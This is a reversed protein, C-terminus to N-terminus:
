AGPLTNRSPSVLTLSDFSRSLAVYRLNRRQDLEWRPPPRLKDRAEGFPIQLYAVNRAESGKARHVSSYTIRAASDDDAFLQAIVGPVEAPSACSSCIADLCAAKDTVAEILAETGDKAELRGIEAAKWRSLGRILDSITRVEGVKRLVAHLQDGISRGRVIAPVRRGIQRMCAAVIPANARCLVLDGPLAREMLDENGSEITGEPAGPAAEFDPVYERALRVHSQPCRWSITLPMTKAGLKERLKLISESDAGRFAYISQFPDGVIVTRGAGTLREALLHQVPNLDQCEDIFLLDVGPFRVEHLVAQWLMDDFDVLATMDLSRVLVDRAWGLVATQQRWTEVDYIWALEDLSELTSPEHPNLGHNKALSVLTAISKRLYRKLSPGGKMGDLVTYTKHQDLRSGFAAKLAMLGFRHMTGVEVGPPCSAEFEDAIKKNFCCYRIALLNDRELLRWMGERCSSSKGTGARAELLLHGSGHQLEAWFAEQQPSGALRKRVPQPILKSGAEAPDLSAILGM